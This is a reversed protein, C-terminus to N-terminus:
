FTERFWELREKELAPLDDVALVKRAEFVNSKGELELRMLRLFRKWSEGQDERSELFHVFAWAEAYFLSTLSMWRDPSKQRAVRQLEEKDRISLLEELTFWVPPEASLAARFEAARQLTRQGFLYRSKGTARSKPTIRLNGCYEAIGEQFWHVGSGVLPNGTLKTTYHHVFQHTAEHTFIGNQIVPRYPNGRLSEWGHVVIERSLLSYHAARTRMPKRGELHECYSDYGSRDRWAIIVLPERIEPLQFLAGFTERFYEHFATMLVGIQEFHFGRGNEVLLLFPRYDECHVLGKDKLYPDAAIRDLINDVGELFPDEARREREAERERELAAEAERAAELADADLWRTRRYEAIPGTYEVFGAHTRAGSHDPDHRLAADIHVQERRPLDHEDCWVALQFHDEASEARDFRSYYDDLLDPATAQAAAPAITLIALLVWWATGLRPRCRTRWGNPIM